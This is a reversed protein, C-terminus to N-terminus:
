ILVACYANQTDDQFQMLTTRRKILIKKMLIKKGLQVIFLTLLFPLHLLDTVSSKVM